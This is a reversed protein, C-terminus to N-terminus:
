QLEAISEPRACDSGKDLWQKALRRISELDTAVGSLTYYVHRESWRGHDMDQIMARFDPGTKVIRKSILYHSFPAFHYPYPSGPKYDNTQSNAWGIPWHDWRVAGWNWGGTGPFSHDVIQSKDSPFGSAEGLIVFAFGATLPMVMAFGKSKSIQWLLENDGVRRAKGADDWYVSYTKDSYADLAVAVRYDRHEPDRPFLDKWATGKPAVAFFDIPQCSYGEPKGAAMTQYTLRRWVLGNPYSIYDETGRLSPHSDDDKNVCFYNWRVWAREPGSQIVDVFSNRERRGTNNFLEAWGNNSEFFQNCLGVGNPLEMWPCYSAEHCFVFRQPQGKWAVIVAKRPNFDAHPPSPKLDGEYRGPKYDTVEIAQVGNIDRKALEAMTIATPKELIPDPAAECGRCGAKYVRCGAADPGQTGEPPKACGLVAVTALLVVSMRRCM